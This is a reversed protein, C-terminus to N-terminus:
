NVSIVLIKPYGIAGVNVMEAAYVLGAAEPMIHFLMQDMSSLAPIM